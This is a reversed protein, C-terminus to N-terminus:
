CSQGGYFERYLVIISKEMKQKSFNEVKHLKCVFTGVSKPSKGYSCSSHILSQLYNVKRNKPTVFTVGM